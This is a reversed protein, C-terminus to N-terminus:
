SDSFALHPWRYAGLADGVEPQERVALREAGAGREQVTVLLEAEVAKQEQGLRQGRGLQRHAHVNGHDRAAHLLHADRAQAVGVLRRHEPRDLDDRALQRADGADADVELRHLAAGVLEARRQQALQDVHSGLEGLHYTARACLAGIAVLGLEIEEQGLQAHRGAIALDRERM